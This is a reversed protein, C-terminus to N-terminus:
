AGVMELYFRRRTASLALVDSERWGYARALVHVEALLRQAWANLESWLFSAIDFAERWQHGCGPCSLSLEMEAQPDMEALKEAAQDMVQRPLDEATLAGGDSRAELVCLEFLRRRAEEAPIGALHELDDSNPLRLLLSFDGVTLSQEPIAETASRLSNINLNLELNGQCRPCAVLGVLEPGFVEERLDLLAADRRGINLRRLAEPNAGSGAAAALTLARNLANQQLGREWVALLDPASLTAM